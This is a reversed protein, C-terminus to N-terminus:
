CNQTVTTVFEIYHCVILVGLVFHKEDEFVVFRAIMFFLVYLLFLYVDIFSMQISGYWGYLQGAVALWDILLSVM